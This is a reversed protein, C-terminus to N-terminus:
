AAVFYRIWGTLPLTVTVFSLKSNATNTAFVPEAATGVQQLPVGAVFPIVGTLDTPGVGETFKVTGVGTAAFYFSVVYIRAGLGPIAVLDLAGAAGQTVISQTITRNYSSDPM